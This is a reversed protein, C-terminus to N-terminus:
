RIGGKADRALEDIRKAIRSDEGVAKRQAQAAMVLLQEASLSHLERPSCKQLCRGQTFCDGSAVRCQAHPIFGDRSM